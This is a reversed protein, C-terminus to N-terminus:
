MENLILHLCLIIIVSDLFQADESVTHLNNQSEFVFLLFIIGTSSNIYYCDYKGEAARFVRAILFSVEEALFYNSMMSPFAFM